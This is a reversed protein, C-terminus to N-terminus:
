TTEEDTEIHSQEGLATLLANWPAMGAQQSSWEDCSPKDVIYSGSPGIRPNFCPPTMMQTCYERPDTGSDIVTQDALKACMLARNNFNVTIYADTNTNVCALLQEIDDNLITFRDKSTKKMEIAYNRRPTSVLIDPAPYAHNGSYGVPYSRCDADTHTHIAKSVTHEERHGKQTQMNTPIVTPHTM